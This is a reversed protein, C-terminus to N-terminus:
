TGLTEKRGEVFIWPAAVGRGPEGGLSDDDVLVGGKTGKRRLRTEDDRRRWRRPDMPLANARPSLCLARAIRWFDRALSDILREVRPTIARLELRTTALERYTSKMPVVARLASFGLYEAVGGVPESERPRRVRAALTERRTANFKERRQSM